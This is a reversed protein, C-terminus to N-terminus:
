RQSLLMHSRAIHCYNGWCSFCLSLVDGATCRLACASRCEDWLVQPEQALIHENRGQARQAIDKAQLTVKRM